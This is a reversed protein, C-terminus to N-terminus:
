GSSYTRPVSQKGANRAKRRGAEHVVMIERCSHVCHDTVLHTGGQTPEPLAFHQTGHQSAWRLQQRPVLDHPVAGFLVDGRIVLSGEARWVRTRRAQQQGHMKTYTRTHIRVHHKNCPNWAKGPGRDNSSVSPSTVENSSSCSCIADVVRRLDDRSAYSPSISASSMSYSRTTGRGTM